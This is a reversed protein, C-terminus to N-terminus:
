EDETLRHAGRLYLDKPVVVADEGDPINLKRRTEADLQQGQVIILDESDVVEIITPCTNLGDSGPSGALKRFREM